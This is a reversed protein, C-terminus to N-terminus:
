RDVKWNKLVAKLKEVKEAISITYAHWLFPNQSLRQGAPNVPTLGHEACLDIVTKFKLGFRAINRSLAYDDILHSADMVGCNHEDVILSINAVAESASLDDLPRWLDLCWDSACTFWNCSGIHRGDRRFYQDYNWRVLAMDRGNHCVTDKSLLATVDFMDPHVLADSDIYISWDNQDRQALEHIQLKEYVVAWEPFKRETIIKFDAGIKRAYANILPYTIECVAPAYNGINLTYITKKVPKHFTARPAAVAAQPELVTTM